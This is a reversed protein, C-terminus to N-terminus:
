KWTPELKCIKFTLREPHYNIKNPVLVILSNETLYKKFTRYKNKIFVFAEVSIVLEREIGIKFACTKRAVRNSDHALLSASFFIKFPANTFIERITPILRQM